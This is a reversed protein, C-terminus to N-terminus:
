SEIGGRERRKAEEEKRESREGEVVEGGSLWRLVGHDGSFDLVREDGFAVLRDNDFSVLNTEEEPEGLKRPVSV